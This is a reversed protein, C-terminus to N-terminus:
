RRSQDEEADQAYIYGVHGRSSRLELWQGMHATVDVPTQAELHALSNALLSPASLVETATITRFRLPPNFQRVEYSRLQSGDLTKAGSNEAAPDATKPQGYVRGDTGVQIGKDMGEQPVAAKRPSTGVQEVKTNAFKGADPKPVRNAPIANKAPPLNSLSVLEDEEPATNKAVAKAKASNLASQDEEKASSEAEDPNKQETEEKSKSVALQQLRKGVQDLTANIAQSGAAGIASNDLAPFAMALNPVLRIEMALRQTIDQKGGIHLMGYSLAGILVLCVLMVTGLIMLLVPSAKRRDAQRAAEAEDSFLSEPHKATESFASIGEDRAATVFAPESPRIAETVIAKANLIDKRAKGNNKTAAAKDKKPKAVPKKKSQVNRKEQLGDIYKKNERRQQARKIEEDLCGLYFQDLKLQEEYSVQESLGAFEVARELMSVALRSQNRELLGVATKLFTYCSLVYLAEAEKLRPYIEELPATLATIPLRSLELQCRVWWLKTGPCDPLENLRAEVSTLAEQFDGKLISEQWGFGVTTGAMPQSCKEALNVLLPSVLTKDM